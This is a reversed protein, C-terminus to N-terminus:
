PEGLGSFFVARQLGGDVSIRRYDLELVRGHREIRIKAPLYLDTDALRRWHSMRRSWYTHGQDDLIEEREVFGRHLDVWLRRRQGAIGDDLTIRARDARPYDTPEVRRGPAVVGLLALRPDYGGLDIDLFTNLGDRSPMHYLHDDALAILQDGDLVASLIRQFLPGRVDLRLLAPPQFLISGSASGVKHLTFRVEATLDELALLSQADARLLKEIDEDGTWEARQVPRPPGCATVVLLAPLLWRGVSPWSAISM